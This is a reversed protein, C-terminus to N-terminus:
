AHTPAQELVWAVRPVTLPLPGHVAHSPDLPALRNQLLVWLAIACYSTM